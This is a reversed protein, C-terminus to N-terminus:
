FQKFFSWAGSAAFSPLAAGGNYECYRVPFGATCGAYEVCPAPAVQMTMSVDCANRGAWFDRNGLAAGLTSTDATGQLLWVAVNGVCGGPPPPAGSLAAVARLKDGRVCALLSTFMAGAGHGLVFVRDQDVCYGALLKALLTDFLLSDRQIDWTAADNMCNPYVVIADAGTAPVLNLATRFADATTNAERFAMVLPYARTKDYALPLNLVYSASMGAVQLSADSLSPDMGCGKSKRPASNSGASGAVVAGNGAPAASGTAGGRGSVAAVGAVAGASDGAASGLGGTSLPARSGTAGGVDQVGAGGEDRAPALSGGREGLVLDRRACAAALTGLLAAAFLVTLQCRIKAIPRRARNKRAGVGLIAQADLRANCVDFLLHPEAM